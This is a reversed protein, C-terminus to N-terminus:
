AGHTRANGAPTEKRLVRRARDLFSSAVGPPRAAGGAAVEFVPLRIPAPRPSARREIGGPAGQRETPTAIEADLRQLQAALYDEQVQQLAAASLSEQLEGINSEIAAIREQLRGRDLELLNFAARAKDAAELLRRLERQQKKVQDNM